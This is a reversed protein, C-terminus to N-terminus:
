LNRCYNNFRKNVIKKLEIPMFSYYRGIKKQKSDNLNGKLYKVLSEYVLDTAIKTSYYRLQYTKMGKKLPLNKQLIINGTDLRDEVKHITVGIKEYDRHYIAWLDSDLGRYFQALGRHVNILGDKFLEIIKPNLKRTGFVLGFDPNIESIAEFSDNMNIDKFSSIKIKSIKNPISIFFNEKEFKKEKVEYLPGVKFHPVISEIELFLAEIFIGRLILKNIFYRHHDTDTSLIIIKKM